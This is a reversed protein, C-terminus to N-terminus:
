AHDARQRSSAQSGVERLLLERRGVMVNNIHHVALAIAATRQTDISGSAAEGALRAVTADINSQIADLEALTEDERISTIVEQVCSLMPAARSRRELGLSRAVALLVSGLAGILMPGYFLWDGYLEM